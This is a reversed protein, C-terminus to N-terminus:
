REASQYEVLRPTDGASWYSRDAAREEEWVVDEATNRFSRVKGCYRCVGRSTAGSPSEVIWYHRCVVEQVLSEPKELLQVTVIRRGHSLIVAKTLRYGLGVQRYGVM